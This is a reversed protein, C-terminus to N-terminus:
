TIYGYHTTPILCRCDTHYQLPPPTSHIQRRQSSGDALTLRRPRPPDVSGQILPRRLGYPSPLDSSGHLCLFALHPPTALKGGGVGLLGLADSPALSTSYTVGNSLYITQASFKRSILPNKPRKVLWPGPPMLDL